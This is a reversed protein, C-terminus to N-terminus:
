TLMSYLIRQCEDYDLAVCRLTYQTDGIVFLALFDDESKLVHVTTGAIVQPAINQGYGSIEMPPISDLGHYQTIHLSVSAGGRVFSFLVDDSQQGAYYKGFREDKQMGEPLYAPLRADIEHEDCVARMDDAYPNGTDPVTVSSDFDIIVGGNVLQYVASISNIGYVSYSWINTALFVVCACVAAFGTRRLMLKRRRKRLEANLMKIGRATFEATSESDGDIQELTQTLDDIYAFNQADPSKALEEDLKKQVEAHLDANGEDAQMSKLLELDTM